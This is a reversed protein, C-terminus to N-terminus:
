FGQEYLNLCARVGDSFISSPDAVDDGDATQDLMVWYISVASYLEGETAFIMMEFAPLLEEALAADNGRIADHALTVYNDDVTIEDGVFLDCIEKPTMEPVEVAVAEPTPTQTDVPPEPAAESSTCGTLLLLAASAAILTRKMHAIM